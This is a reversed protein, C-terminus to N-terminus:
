GARHQGSGRLLERLTGRARTETGLLGHGRDAVGEPIEASRAQAQTASQAQTVAQAQTVSQAQTERAWRDPANRSADASYIRGLYHRIQVFRLRNGRFAILEVEAGPGKAM